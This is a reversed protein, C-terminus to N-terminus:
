RQAAAAVPPSIRRVPTRPWDEVGHDVLQHIGTAVDNASRSAIRELCRPAEGRDADAGRGIRSERGVHLGLEHGDIRHGLARGHHAFGNELVAEHMRHLQDPEAGVDLDVAVRGEYPLGFSSPAVTIAVSKRAEALRTMAPRTACPSVRISRM